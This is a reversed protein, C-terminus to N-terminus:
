MQQDASIDRSPIVTSLPSALRNKPDELLEHEWGEVESVSVATWPAKFHSKSPGAVAKEDVHVYDEAHDKIELARLREIVLKENPLPTKSQNAGM